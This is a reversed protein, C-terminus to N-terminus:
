PTDVGETFNQLAEEEMASIPRIRLGQIQQLGQFSEFTLRIRGNQTVPARLNAGAMFTQGFTRIIWVSESSGRTNQDGLFEMKVKPNVRAHSHVFENRYWFEVRYSGESVINTLEIEYFQSNVDTSTTLVLSYPTMGPMSQFRYRMGAPIPHSPEFWVEMESFTKATESGASDRRALVVERFANLNRQEFFSPSTEKISDLWKLALDFQELRYYSDAMGFMAPARYGAWQQLRLLMEFNRIAELYRGTHRDAEARMFRYLGEVKQEPYEQEIRELLQRTHRINGDRLQQEAVRLLAGRTTADVASGLVSEPRGLGDAMRYIEAARSNDGMEALMDGWSIAVRRVSPISLRRNEEVIKAYLREAEDFDRLYRYYIEALKWEVELILSRLSGASRLAEKALAVAESTHGQRALAEMRTTYLGVRYPLDLGPKKLLLLSVKDLLAWRATQGCISLFSFATGLQSANLRNLDYSEMARVADGLALPSPSVPAKWVHFRRKFPPLKAHSALTVEYDGNGFYVHEESIKTGQLGDGFDWRVSKPPKLSWAELRALHLDFGGTSMTNAVGLCPIAVPQGDFAEVGALTASLAPVFAEPPVRSWTKADPLIWYFACRGEVGPTNGTVQHIEFRYVGADLQIDEGVQFVKLRQQLTRNSGVRSFVLYDNLFFFSADDANLFFRYLGPKEIKMFGRYSAAFNLTDGLRFPNMKQLIDTIAANGLVNDSQMLGKVIVPWGSLEDMRDGSWDRVEMSLGEKHTRPDTALSLAYLDDELKKATEATESAQRNATEVAETMPKIKPSLTNVVALSAAKLKQAAARQEVANALAKKVQDLKKQANANEKEANELETIAGAVAMRFPLAADRAEDIQVKRTEAVQRLALMAAQAENVMRIRDMENFVTAARRVTQAHVDVAAKAAAEAEEARREAQEILDKQPQARAEAAELAAKAHTLKEKIPPIEAEADKVAQEREPIWIALKELEGNVKAITAQEREVRLRVDRLEGAVEASTRRLEMNKLSADRAAVRMQEMRRRQADDVQPPAKPNVAYVWYWRDMGNRTFQLLTDGKPDHSLVATPLVKGSLTVVRLDSADPKVWGGTPISAIVTQRAAQELPDDMMRLLYRVLYGAMWSPEQAPWNTNEADVIVRQDKASFQEFPFSIRKKDSDLHVVQDILAVYEGSVTEDNVTWTPAPPENTEAVFGWTPSLIWALLIVGGTRCVPLRHHRIMNM